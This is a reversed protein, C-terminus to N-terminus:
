RYQWLSVINQIPSVNVNGGEEEEEDVLDRVYFLCQVVLAFRCSFGIGAWSRGNDPAYFSVKTLLVWDTKEREELLRPVIQFNFDSSAITPLAIALWIEPSLLSQLAGFESM